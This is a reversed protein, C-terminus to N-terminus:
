LPQVQPFILINIHNCAQPPHLAVFSCVLVSPSPLRESRPLWTQSVRLAFSNSEGLCGHPCRAAGVGAEQALELGPWVLEVELYM